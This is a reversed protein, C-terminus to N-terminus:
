NQDSTFSSYSPGHGQQTRIDTEFPLDVLVFGGPHNIAYQIHREFRDLPSDSSGVLNRAYCIDLACDKQHSVAHTAM